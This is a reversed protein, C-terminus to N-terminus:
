SPLSRTLKVVAILPKRWRRGWRRLRQDYDKTRGEKEWLEAYITFKYFSFYLSAFFGAVGDEYAKGIVFRTYFEGVGARLMGRLTFHEGKRQLNAVDNPSYRMLKDVVQPVSRWTDHLVACDLRDPLTLARLNTLDPGGHVHAPWNIAGRRFFRPHTSDALGPSTGVTGFMIQRFPVHVVDVQNAKAVGILEQALSPPVREDADLMLVWDCTALSLAYNRAPDGYTLREHDYLRHTYRQVIERTGDTSYMDVVVIEDTWSAVSELCAEVLHAEDCTILV